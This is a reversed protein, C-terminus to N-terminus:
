APNIELSVESISKQSPDLLKSPMIRRDKWIM